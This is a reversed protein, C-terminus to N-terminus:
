GAPGAFQEVFAGSYLEERRSVSRIAPRQTQADPFDALGTQIARACGNRKAERKSSAAM